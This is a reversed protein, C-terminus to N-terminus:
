SPTSTPTSYVLPTGPLDNNFALNQPNTTIFYRAALTHKSNIAYDVNAIYQDETYKAPSTFSFPTFRGTGSGPIYYSGDANKLNLM